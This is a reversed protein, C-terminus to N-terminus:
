QGQTNRSIHWPIQTPRISPLMEKLSRSFSMLTQENQLCWAPAHLLWSHKTLANFGMLILTSAMAFTPSPPIFLAPWEWPTFYSPSPTPLM